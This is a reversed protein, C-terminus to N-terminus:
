PWEEQTRLVHVALPSLELLEEHTYGLQAQAALNANVIRCDPTLWLIMTPATELSHLALKRESDALLRETIDRAVEVLFMDGGYEVVFCSIDVDITQGDKRLKKERFRLSGERRLTEVHRGWLECTCDTGTDFVNSALLETRTYGLGASAAANAYLFNGDENLWFVMDPLTDMIRQALAPSLTQFNMLTPISPAELPARLRKLRAAFGEPDDFASARLSDPAKGSLVLLLDPDLGLDQALARTNAETLASLGGREIRSLYAPQIGLRAAVRRLSFEPSEKKL